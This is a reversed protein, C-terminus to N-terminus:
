EDKRGEQSGSGCCSSSNGVVEAMVNGDISCQRLTPAKQSLDQMLPEDTFPFLCTDASTETYPSVSLIFRHPQNM